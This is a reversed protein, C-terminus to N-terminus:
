EPTLRGSPQRRAWVRCLLAEQVRAGEQVIHAERDAVHHLGRVALQGREERPAEIRASQPPKSTRSGRTSVTMIM